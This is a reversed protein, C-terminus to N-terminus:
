HCQRGSVLWAYSTASGPPGTDLPQGTDPMQRFRSRKGLKALDEEDLADRLLVCLTTDDGM